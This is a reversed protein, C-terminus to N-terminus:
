HKSSRGWEYYVGQIEPREDFVGDHLLLLNTCDITKEIQLFANIAPRSGKWEPPFLRSGSVSHVFSSVIINREELFDKIMAHREVKSIQKPATMVLEPPDDDDFCIYWSYGYIVPNKYWKDDALKVYTSVLSM